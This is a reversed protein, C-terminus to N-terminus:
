PKLPVNSSTFCAHIQFLLRTPMMLAMLCSCQGGQCSGGRNVDVCWQLHHGWLLEGSPQCEM